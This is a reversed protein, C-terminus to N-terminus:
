QARPLARLGWLSVPWRKGNAVLEAAFAIKDAALRCDAYTFVIRQRSKAPVVTLEAAKLTDLPQDRHLDALGFATRDALCTLARADTLEAQLRNASVRHHFVAISAPAAGLNEVLVSFRLERDGPALSEASLRLRDQEIVTKSAPVPPQAALPGTAFALLCATCAAASIRM